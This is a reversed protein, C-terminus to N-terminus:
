APDPAYAFRYYLGAAVLAAVGVVAGLVTVIRRSRRTEPEM